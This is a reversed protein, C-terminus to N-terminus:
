GATHTHYAIPIPILNIGQGEYRSTPHFDYYTSGEMNPINAQMEVVVLTRPPITINRKM